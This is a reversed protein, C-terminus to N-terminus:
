ALPHLWRRSASAPVRDTGALRERGHGFTIPLAGPVLARVVSMGLAAVDAPTVDVFLVDFGRAILRTCLSDLRRAACDGFHARLTHPSPPGVLPEVRGFAGTCGYVLAHDAPTRVRTPDALLAEARTRDREHVARMLPLHGAAERLAGLVAREPDPHTCAGSLTKLGADGPHVAVATAWVSPVGWEPRTVDLAVAEYGEAGLARRIREIRPDAATELRLRALPGGRYWAVLFADRELVELLGHLAAEAVSSGIATGNSTTYALPKVRPSGDPSAPTMQHFVLDAPVAVQRDGAVSYAWAWLRVADPDYPAWRFGRELYQDEGHLVLRRPDIARSGLRTGSARELRHGRPRAAAYRELAELMAVARAEEPTEATGAAWEGASRRGRVHDHTPVWARGMPLGPLAEDPASVVAHILGARRGVAAPELRDGIARPGDARDDVASPDSRLGAATVRRDALRGCAPCGPVPLVAVTGVRAGAGAISVATRTDRPDWALAVEIIARALVPEALLPNPEAALARGIRERALGHRHAARRRLDLCTACGAWGGSLPGIWVEDLDARVPLWPVATGDLRRRLRRDRARDPHDHVWLAPRPATERAGAMLARLAALLQGSGRAALARAVSERSGPAPAAPAAEAGLDDAAGIRVLHAVLRSVVEVGEAPLNRTIEDLSLEGRLRPELWRLLAFARPGALHSESSPTRIFV